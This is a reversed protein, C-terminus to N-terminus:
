RLRREWKGRRARRARGDSRRKLQRECRDLKAGVVGARRPEAELELRKRRPRWRAPRRVQGLAVLRQACLQRLKGELRTLAGGVATPAAWGRGARTWLLRQMACELRREDAEQRQHAM